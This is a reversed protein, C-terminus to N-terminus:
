DKSGPIIRRIVIVAVAFLFVFIFLNNAWTQIDNRNEGGKVRTEMDNLYSSVATELNNTETKLFGELDALYGLIEDKKEINSGSV